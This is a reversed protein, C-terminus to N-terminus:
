DRFLHERLTLVAYYCGVAVCAVSFAAGGYRLLTMDILGSPLAQERCGLLCVSALVFSQM